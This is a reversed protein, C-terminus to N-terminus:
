DNKPVKFSHHPPSVMIDVLHGLQNQEPDYRDVHEDITYNDRGEIVRIHHRSQGTEGPIPKVFSAVQREEKVELLPDQSYGREAYYSRIGDLTGPPKNNKYTRGTRAINIGM